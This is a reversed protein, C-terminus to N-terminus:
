MLAQPDVDVQIRGGAHHIALARLAARLTAMQRGRLTMIYRYKGKIKEVPARVPGALTIGSHIYPALGAAFDKAFAETEADDDGKFLVAIMRSFPPFNMLERFELDFASFGEYDGAVAYRM